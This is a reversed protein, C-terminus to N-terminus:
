QGGGESVENVGIRRWFTEPVRALLVLDSLLARLAALEVRVMVIVLKRYTIHFFVHPNFAL